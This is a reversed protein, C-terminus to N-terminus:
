KAGIKMDSVHNLITMMIFYISHLQLAKPSRRTVPVSSHVSIMM